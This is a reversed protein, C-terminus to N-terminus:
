YNCPQLVQEAAIKIMEYNNGKSQKLQYGDAFNSSYLHGIFVDANQERRKSISFTSNSFEPLQMVVTQLENNFKSIKNTIIGKLQLSGELNIVSMDGIKQAFLSTFQNGSCHIITPYQKFQLPKKTKSQASVSNAMFLCVMVYFTFTAQKM